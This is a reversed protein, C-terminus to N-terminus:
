ASKGLVSDYSHDGSRELVDVKAAHTALSHTLGAAALKKSIEQSVRLHKGADGGWQPVCVSRLVVKGGSRYWTWGSLGLSALQKGIKDRTAGSMPKDFTYEVIPQAAPDDRKTTHMILVADQDFQKGTEALLKTAAGNGHYTVVWTAEKGGQWAGIGPSRFLM